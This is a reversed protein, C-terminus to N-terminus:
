LGIMIAQFKDPNDQMKSNKFWVICIISEDVLVEKTTELSKDSYTVTNDDAHNFFIPNKRSTFFTM